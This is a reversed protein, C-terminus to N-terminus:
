IDQSPIIQLNSRNFTMKFSGLPGNRNKGVQVEMEEMQGVYQGVSYAYPRFILFVIDAIEDPGGISTTRPMKSEDQGKASIQSAVVVATSFEKALNKLTKVSDTEREKPNQLNSLQIFQLSDIFVVSIDKRQIEEFVSNAYEPRLMPQDNLYISLSAISNRAEKLKNEQEATIKNQEILFPDIGSLIGTLKYFLKENNTEYTIFGARLGKRAIQLLMNLMFSTKGMGPYSGVIVVEGSRTGFIARDINDFGTPIIKIHTKTEGEVSNLKSIPTFNDDM